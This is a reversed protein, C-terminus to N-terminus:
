ANLARPLGDLSSCVVTGFREAIRTEEIGRAWFRETVVISSYPLALVLHGLDAFDNPDVPRTWQRDRYLTLMCDAHLSPVTSWFNVLFEVGRSCFEKFTVGHRSLILSLQDQFQITYEALKIRHRVAGSESRLEPRRADLALADSQNRASGSTKLKHRNESTTSVILNLLAGPLTSLQEFTEIPLLELQAGLSVRGDPPIGYMFGKGFVQPEPPISRLGLAMAVSRELESPLVFPWSAMYWGGSLEDFVRALKFRREADDNRLLEVLHLFSLPFCTQGSKIAALASHLAAIHSESKSFGYYARSLYIWHNLDLVVYRM